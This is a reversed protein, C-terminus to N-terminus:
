ATGKRCQAWAPTQWVPLCGDPLAPLRGIDRYPNEPGHYDSGSSAALAFDQCLGAFRLM